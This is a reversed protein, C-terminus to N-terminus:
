KIYSDQKINEFRDTRRTLRSSLSSVWDWSRTPKFNPHGVTEGSIQETISRTSFLLMWNSFTLPIPVYWAM